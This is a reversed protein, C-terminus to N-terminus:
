EEEMTIGAEQTQELALVATDARHHERQRRVYEVTWRLHRESLSLVGYGRQWDLVPGTRGPLHNIHYSTAGKVQGIFDALAIRPPISAVLHLHDEVSGIAHVIAGMSVAKGTAMRHVESEIEATILPQRNKTAFVIHYFLRWHPM